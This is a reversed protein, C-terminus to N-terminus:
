WKRWATRHALTATINGPQTAQRKCSELTKTALSKLYGCKSPPMTNALAIDHALEYLVYKGWFRELDLTKSGDNNDALLRNRQITLTGTTAPVPWLLVSIEGHLQPYFMVPHGTAEKDTLALYEGRTILRVFTSAESDEPLYQADGQISFTSSPLAYEAVGEEVTIDYLEVSRAFAGLTQMHDVQLELLDRAQSALNNWQQGTRAAGAPLVGAVQIALMVLRDIDLERTSSSNVTM